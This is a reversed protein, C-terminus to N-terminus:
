VFSGLFGMQQLLTAAPEWPNLSLKGHLPRPAKRRIQLLFISVWPGLNAKSQKEGESTFAVLPFCVFLNAASVGTLNSPEQLPYRLAIPSHDRNADGLLARHARRRVQSAICVHWAPQAPGVGDGQAVGRPPPLLPLQIM